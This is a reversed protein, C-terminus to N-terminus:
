AEPSATSASRTGDAALELHPAEGFLSRRALDPEETQHLERRMRSVRAEIGTSATEELAALRGVLLADKLFRVPALLRRLLM